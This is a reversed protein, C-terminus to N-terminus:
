LTATGSFVEIMYLMPQSCVRDLKKNNTLLKKRTAKCDMHSCVVLSQACTGGRAAVNEM